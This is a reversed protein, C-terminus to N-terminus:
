LRIRLLIRGLVHGAALREHAKAADALSFCAAIPVKIKIAELARSLWHLERIGVIVDYSNVRVRHQKSPETEVGNPYAVRGGLRVHEIVTAQTTGGALILAADFGQPAFRRAARTFNHGKGDIAAEAGLRRTLAAGDAGSASAFVCAGRLKAFQVAFTGVSGSAGHIVVREGRKLQLVEDIGQLAALAPTMAAADELDLGKPLHAVREAPVAVYEAYCGASSKSGRSVGSARTNSLGAAYVRDGIAFRRSMGGVAVVTGSGDTGLVLPFRPYRGVALRGNRIEADWRGVGATHMAILVEDSEPVPVPISRLTLSAPGGFKQIAVACMTEPIEHVRNLTATGATHMTTRM